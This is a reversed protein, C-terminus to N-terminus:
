AEFETDREPDIVTERQEDKYTQRQALAVDLRALLADVYRLPELRQSM